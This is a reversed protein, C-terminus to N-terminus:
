GNDRPTEQRITVAVVAKSPVVMYYQAAKEGSYTVLYSAPGFPTIKDVKGEKCVQGVKLSKGNDIDLQVIKGQIEGLESTNEM